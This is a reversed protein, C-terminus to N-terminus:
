VTTPSRDNSLRWLCICSKPKYALFQSYSPVYPRSQVQDCAPKVVAYDIVSQLKKTSFNSVGIARALGAQVTKEM